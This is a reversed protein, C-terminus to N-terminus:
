AKWKGSEATPLYDINQFERGPLERHTVMNPRQGEKLQASLIDVKNSIFIGNPSLKTFSRTDTDLKWAITM